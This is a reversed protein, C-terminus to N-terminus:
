PEKTVGIEQLAAALAPEDLETLPLAAFRDIRTRLREYTAAFAAAEGEGIDAPDPLGWHVRVPAGHWLPCAEGAANDCLTIVVDFTPADPRGRAFEDWSKSRLGDTAIGHARLTELGVPHPADKPTSGASHAVFEERANFMAEAMISRARNGTCLALIRLPVEM